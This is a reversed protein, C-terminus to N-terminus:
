ESFTYTYDFVREGMQVEKFSYSSGYLQFNHAGGWTGINDHAHFYVYRNSTNALFVTAGPQITFFGVTSWSSGVVAVYSQSSDKYPQYSIAVFIPSRTNNKVYIRTHTWNSTHEPHMPNVTRDIERGVKRIPKPIIRKIQKVPNFGRSEEALKCLANEKSKESNEAQVEAILKKLNEQVKSPLTQIKEKWSEFSSTDGTTRALEIDKLCEQYLTCLEPTIENLSVMLESNAARSEAALKQALSVKMALEKDGNSEAAKALRELTEKDKKNVAIQIAADMMQIATLKSKHSRHLIKEAHALQLSCDALISSNGEILANGALKLDVYKEFAEDVFESSLGPLRYETAINEQSPVIKSNSSETNAPVDQQAYLLNSVLILSLCFIFFLNKTFM